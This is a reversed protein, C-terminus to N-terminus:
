YRTARTRSQIASTTINLRITAAKSISGAIPAATLPTTIEFGDIVVYKVGTSLVFGNTMVGAGSARFTIPNGASGPRTLTVKGSDPTAGTYDGPAVSCTHGAWAAGACKRITRWPRSSSGDGTADDGSVSVYFVGSVVGADASFGGDTGGDIGADSVPSGGDAGADVSGDGADLAADAEADRGSDSVGTDVGAYNGGGPKGANGCGILGAGSAVLILWVFAAKITLDL